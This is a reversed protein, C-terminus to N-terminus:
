EPGLPEFRSMNKVHDFFFGMRRHPIGFQHMVKQFSADHTQAFQVLEGELELDCDAEAFFEPTQAWYFAGGLDFLFSQSPPIEALGSVESIRPLGFPNPM